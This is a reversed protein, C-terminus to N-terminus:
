EAEGYGESLLSSSLLETADIALMNMSLQSILIEINALSGSSRGVALHTWSVM